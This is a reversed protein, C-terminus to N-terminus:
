QMPDTCENVTMKRNIKAVHEEIFFLVVMLNAFIFLVCRSLIIVWDDLKMTYVLSFIGIFVLVLLTLAVSFLFLVDLAIFSIVLTRLFKNQIAGLMSKLFVSVSTMFSTLADLVADNENM